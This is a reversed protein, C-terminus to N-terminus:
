TADHFVIGLTFREGDRLRSVGHRMTLRHVGRTGQGPRYRTAFIVADGQRLPVVEVRSQARPRQETVVFEGGRFGTQPASLLVTLQLPFVQDGYLDQHLCNYDGRTYRLLLPTPRTQGARHCRELFAAHQAPFRPALQLADHWRNAIPALPAYLATRLQAVLEPLPYAFYQYEGRGFGHQVMVIRSRFLAARAYSAALAACQEASLLGPLLATGNADLEGALRPWPLQAIREPISAAVSCAAIASM